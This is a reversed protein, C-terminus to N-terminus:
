GHDAHLGLVDDYGNCPLEALLGNARAAFLHAGREQSLVLARHATRRASQVDGGARLAKARILFVLGEAYREGYTDIFTAAKDLATMAASVDDACLRIEALLAYWTALNSRPPDVLTTEIIREMEMASTVPDGGSMAKAWHRALRPYSGSFTFSFDPDADIATEAARLAWAFDGAAAAATVAFSGWISIAYPDDGADLEVVDFLHRAAVLDGHLATNLALMVPTTMQLRHRLPEADREARILSDSQSLNRYAEGINGSSWQHVGWAHHGSAQVVPDSSRQGHDLLRRALRGAADLQIGQAHALFRSFLFGTAERERGLSRAVKEARDLHDMTAGVFGAHIGAVATLETLAALELGPLGASRAIHAAADLHKEATEYASRRAAIRAAVILAQATQEPEALPGASCLHHALAEGHREAPEQTQALAAAIRLHLHSADSRSTSRAVSERVLDHVFRWDGLSGSTVEVLGLAELTELRTLCQSADLGSARALLRADIDRGMLAATEILRRDEDDLKSTRDRVIDRVTSPVAAQAAAQDSLHDEEALFRALERVFLPNGETRAQINRAVGPSPSQGTEQHVLEAVDSPGLPGLAIRRHRDQRAVAALMRRLHQSPTPAHGRLTGMLVSRDPLSEALHAFLQLSAQDAWHLDDVVVVLPQRAAAANFLAVVSGYLRFQAGADPRALVEADHAPHQLLDGLEATWRARDDEPLAAILAEVIQVWPWMSPAGEGEHCRGWFTLAGNAAAEDAVEALLRSKGVGPPGEVLVIQARAIAASDVAHRLLALEEQRGVLRDSRSDSPKRAGSTSHAGSKSGPAVEPLLGAVRPTLVAGAQQLVQRHAERLAPGPDIGLEALRARVTDFVSLAEAQQGSAALTTMLTAQVTEDFPAIWAALRLPQLIRKAHGRPVIAHAAEVCADLLERNVSAFLPYAAASLTLGDGASGRWRSLAEEYADAGEEFRHADLAARALGLLRRFETLDLAVHSDDFQYGSSRHHLYSGPARAPLNPELLRRLTGVYKQVINLASTPMKDDWVLDILESSSVPRGVHMLLLALLYTQQRPGTDVEVGDRWVRLPGLVQVTLSAAGDGPRAVPAAAPVVPTPETGISRRSPSADAM